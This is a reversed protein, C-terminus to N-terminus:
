TGGFQAEPDTRRRCRWWGLLSVCGLVLGPLGAGAIPGPVSVVDVPSAAGLVGPDGSGGSGGSAAGNATGDSGSHSGVVGTTGANDQHFAGDSGQSLGGRTCCGFIDDKKRFCDRPPVICRLRRERADNSGPPGANTWQAPDHRETPIAPFSGQALERTAFSITQETVSIHGPQWLESVMTAGNAANSAVSVACGAFAAVALVGNIRGRLMGARPWPRPRLSDVRQPHSVRDTSFVAVCIGGMM